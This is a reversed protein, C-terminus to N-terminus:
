EVIIEGTDSPNLHNHYGYTGPKDFTLSSSQGNAIVGINLPPYDTHVPHPNSDLSFDAGSKNIWTVTTGAKVTLTAPSFGSSTYTITNQAQQQSPSLAPASTVSPTQSIQERQTNTPSPNSQPTYTNKSNLLFIGGALIALAIVVLIIKSSM